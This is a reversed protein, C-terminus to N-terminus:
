PTYCDILEEMQKIILDQDALALQAENLCLSMARCQEGPHEPWSIRGSMVSHCKSSAIKGSWSITQPFLGQFATVISLPTVPLVNLVSILFAAALLRIYLKRELGMGGVLILLIM